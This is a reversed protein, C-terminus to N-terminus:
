WPWRRYEEAVELLVSELVGAFGVHSEQMRQARQVAAMLRLGGEAPVAAAYRRAEEPAAPMDGGGAQSLLADRVIGELECLLARRDLKEDKYADTVRPIDAPSRVSFVSRGLAQRERLREEGIGLAAGVCGQAMLAASRAREADFGLARLRGETEERGLPHFRVLRLRSRVTPLLAAPRATTLIFATGEPPEELTKLLCNQAQPNMRDADPILFFKAGDEFSRVSVAELVDRMVGVTIDRKGKEPEVAHVDPHTDALVRRCPGCEGCPGDAGRGCLAAMALLRAVSRKGTGAPGAFLYAHAFAHGSFARHLAPIQASQGYFDSLRLM